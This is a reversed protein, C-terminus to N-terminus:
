TGAEKELCITVPKPEDDLTYFAEFVINTSITKAKTTMIPTGRNYATHFDETYKVDVEKPIVLQTIHATYDGLKTKIKLYIPEGSELDICSMDFYSTGCYPCKHQEYDIVAGCNPCNTKM